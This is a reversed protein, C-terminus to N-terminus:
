PGTVVSKIVLGSSCWHYPVQGAVHPVLTRSSAISSFAKLFFLAFFAQWDALTHCTACWPSFLVVISREKLLCYCTSFNFLPLAIFNVQLGNEHARQEIELITSVDQESPGQEQLYM